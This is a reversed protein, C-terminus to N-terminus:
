RSQRGVGEDDTDTQPACWGRESTSRAAGSACESCPEVSVFHCYAEDGTLRSHLLTRRKHSHGSKALSVPDMTARAGSCPRCAVAACSPEHLVDPGPWVQSQLPGHCQQLWYM